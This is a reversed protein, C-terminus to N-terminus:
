LCDDSYIAFSTHSSVKDIVDETYRNFTRAQQALTQAPPDNAQVETWTLLITEWTEPYASKFVKFCASSNVGNLQVDLRIDAFRDKFNYFGRGCSVQM